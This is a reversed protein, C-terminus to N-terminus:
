SLRSLLWLAGCLLLMASAALLPWFLRPHRRVLPMLM